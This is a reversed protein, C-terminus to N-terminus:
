KCSRINISRNANKFGSKEKMNDDFITNFGSLVADLDVDKLKTWFKYHKPCLFPM